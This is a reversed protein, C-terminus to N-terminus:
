QLLCAALDETHNAILPPEEREEGREEKKERPPGLIVGCCGVSAIRSTFDPTSVLFMGGVGGRFQSFYTGHRIYYLKTTIVIPYVLNVVMEYGVGGGIQHGANLYTLKRGDLLDM